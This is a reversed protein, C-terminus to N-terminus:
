NKRLFKIAYRILYENMTKTADWYSQGELNKIEEQLEQIKGAFSQKNQALDAEASDLERKAAECIELAAQIAAAVNGDLKDSLVLNGAEDTTYIDELGTLGNEELLSALEKQADEATSKAAQYANSAAEVAEEAEAVGQQVQNLQEQAAADM